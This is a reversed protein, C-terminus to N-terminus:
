SLVAGQFLSLPLKLPCVSCILAFYIRKYSHLHLILNCLLRRINSCKEDPSKWAAHWLQKRRNAEKQAHTHTPPGTWTLTLMVGASGGWPASAGVRVTLCVCVCVCSHTMVHTSSLGSRSNLLLSHTFSSVSTHLWFYDAYKSYVLLINTIQILTFYHRRGPRNGNWSLKQM